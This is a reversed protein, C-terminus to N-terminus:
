LITLRDTIPQRPKDPAPDDAYGTHVIGVVKEDPTLQLFDRLRLDEKYTKWCTSLGADSALLLFNQIVCATAAYDEERVEPKEHHNMVVVVFLPVAMFKNYTGEFLQQRQDDGQPNVKDLMMEARITAYTVRSDGSIIIFRWPETMRHNPAYVATELLDQVLPLAVPQGNFNSISRRSRIIDKLNGM